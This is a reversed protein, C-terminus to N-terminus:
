LGQKCAEVQRAALCAPVRCQVQNQTDEPGAKWHCAATYSFLIRKGLDEPVAQLFIDREKKMVASMIDQLIDGLGISHGWSLLQAYGEAVKELHEKLSEDIHPKNPIDSKKNQNPKEIM